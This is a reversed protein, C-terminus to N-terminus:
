AHDVGFARLLGPLTEMLPHDRRFRAVNARLATYDAAALLEPLRDLADLRYIIGLGHRRVIDAIYDFRDHVLLPLGAELYTFLKSSMNYRFHEPSFRTEGLNDYMLGFHFERLSETIEHFPLGPLFRFGPHARELDFYRDHEHWRMDRANQNVFFTLDLGDRSLAEIVPAFDHHGFGRAMAIRYPMVGGAYAIKWPPGSRELNDRNNPPWPLSHLLAEPRDVGYAALLGAVGDPPLKHALFDSRALIARELRVAPHDPGHEQYLQSDVIDLVLRYNDRNEAALAGLLGPQITVHVAQARCGGLLDGLATYDSAEYAQDFWRGIEYDERICLGLFTLYFRGTDRLPLARKIVSPYPYYAVFVLHPKGNVERRDLHRLPATYGLPERSTPLPQALSDLVERRLDPDLWSFAEPDFYAARKPM